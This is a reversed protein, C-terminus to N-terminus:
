FVRGFVKFLRRSPLNCIKIIKKKFFHTKKAQKPMLFPHQSLCKKTETMSPLQSPNEEVPLNRPLTTTLELSSTMKVPWHAAITVGVHPRPAFNKTPPPIKRRHMPTVKKHVHMPTNALFNSPPICPPIKEEEGWFRKTRFLFLSQEFVQPM